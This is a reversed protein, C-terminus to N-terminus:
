KSTRVENSVFDVERGHHDKELQTVGNILAVTREDVEVESLSSRRTYATAGRAPPLKEEDMSSSEEVGNFIPAASNSSLSPTSPVVPDKRGGVPTDISPLELSSKQQPDGSM